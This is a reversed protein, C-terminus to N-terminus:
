KVDRGRRPKHFEVWVGYNVGESGPPQPRHIKFERIGLVTMVHYL